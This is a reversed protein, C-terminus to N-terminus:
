YWTTDYGLTDHHECKTAIIYGTITPPDETAREIVADLIYGINKAIINNHIRLFIFKNAICWENKTKDKHNQNTTIVLSLSPIIYDLYKNFNHVGNGAYKTFGYAIKNQELYARVSVDGQRRATQKKNNFHLYCLNTHTLKTCGVFKCQKTAVHHMCYGDVVGQSDCYGGRTFKHLCEKVRKGNNYYRLQTSPVIIRNWKSIPKPTPIITSPIFSPIITTSRITDFLKANTLHRIWDISNYLEHFISEHIIYHSLRYITEYLYDDGFQKIIPVNTIHQIIKGYDDYRLQNRNICSVGITIRKVDDDDDIIESIFNGIKNTDVDYEYITENCYSAFTIVWKPPTTQQQNQIDVKHTQYIEYIKDCMSKNSLLRVMHNYLIVFIEDHGLSIATIVASVILNVNTNPLLNIVQEINNAIVHIHLLKDVFLDYKQILKSNALATYGIVGYRHLSIPNYDILYHTDINNVIFYEDKIYLYNALYLSIDADIYSAFEFLRNTYHNDIDYLTDLDCRIISYLCKNEMAVVPDTIILQEAMYRLHRCTRSMPHLIYRNNTTLYRWIDIPFISIM